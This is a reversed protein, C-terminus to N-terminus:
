RIAHWSDHIHFIGIPKHHTNIVFLFTIKYREMIELAEQVLMDPGLTKPNAHMIDQATYTTIDGFQICARRIDGDSIVGILTGSEDIVGACGLRKESMTMLTDTIPTHLHVLPLAHQPSMVNRIPSLKFGLAGHPHHTRYQALSIQSELASVLIDGLTLMLICSTTPVCQLPGAEKVKPLQLTQTALKGLTKEPFATFLISPIGHSQAFSLLPVLEASEGGYSGLCLVDEPKLAGLDGHVAHTADLRYAPVGISAFSSALKQMIFASKGIGTCVLHGKLELIYRLCIDLNSPLQAKLMELAIIHHQIVRKPCYYSDITLM